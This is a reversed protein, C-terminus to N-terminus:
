AQLANTNTEQIQFDIDSIFSAEFYQVNRVGEVQKFSYSTCVLNVVEFYDNLFVNTVKLAVPSDLYAKLAKVKASPYVEPSNDAFYGRIVVNLDNNNIFEKVTGDMGQISTTVINRQQGAEIIAGEIFVGPVGEIDDTVPLLATNETYEKKTENYTFKTFSPKEIFVTGYLPTNFLSMGDPTDKDQEYSNIFARKVLPLGFGRALTRAANKARIATPIQFNVAM